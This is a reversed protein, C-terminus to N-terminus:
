QFWLLFALQIIIMTQQPNSFMDTKYIESLMKHYNILGLLWRQRFMYIYVMM